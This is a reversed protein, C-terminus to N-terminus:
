AMVEQFRTNWRNILEEKVQKRFEETEKNSISIRSNDKMRLNCTTCVIIHENDSCNLIGPSMYYFAEGGCFPCNKIKM